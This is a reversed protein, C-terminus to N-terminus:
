RESVGENTGLETLPVRDQPVTGCALRLGRWLGYRWCVWVMASADMEYRRAGMGGLCFSGGFCFSETEWIGM